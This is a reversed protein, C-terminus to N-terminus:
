NGLEDEIRTYGVKQLDDAQILTFQTRHRHEFQDMSDIHFSVPYRAEGDAFTLTLRLEGGSQVFPEVPPALSHPGEYVIQNHHVEGGLNKLM